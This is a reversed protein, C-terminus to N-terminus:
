GREGLQDVTHQVHHEHTVRVDGGPDNAQTPAVLPTAVPPVGPVEPPFRPETLIRNNKDPPTAIIINVQGRESDPSHCMWVEFYPNPCKWQVEVLWARYGTAPQGHTLGMSVEMAPTSDRLVSQVDGQYGVPRLQSVASALRGPRAAGHLRQNPPAPHHRAEVEASTVRDVNIIPLDNRLDSLAKNRTTVEAPNRPNLTNELLTPLPGKTLTYPM